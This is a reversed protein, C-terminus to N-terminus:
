SSNSEHRLICFFSPSLSFEALCSANRTTMVGNMLEFTADKAKGLLKILKNVFNEIDITNWLPPLKLKKAIKM